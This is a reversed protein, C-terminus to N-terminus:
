SKATRCGMIIKLALDIRLFRRNPQKITEYRHTKCTKYENTIAPLTKHDLKEEINKENLWLTNVSDVIAEIDNNEFAEKTINVMKYICLFLLKM